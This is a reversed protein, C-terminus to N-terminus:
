SVLRAAYLIAVISKADIIDGQAIGELAEAMPMAKVEIFEDVERQAAGRSMESALFLHIREDSFGPTTLITTLFQLRGATYGTEERLERRACAEPAEGPELRGAPVELLWGGAAYRYQRILVVHPDEGAPDSLFPIIACAGPHRVIDLEGTTGDPFRVTDAAVSIIGGRHIMRSSLAGASGGAAGVGRRDNRADPM